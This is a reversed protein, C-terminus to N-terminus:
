SYLSIATELQQQESRRRGERIFNMLMFIDGVFTSLLICSLYPVGVDKQVPTDEESVRLIAGPHMQM